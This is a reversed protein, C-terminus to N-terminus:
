PAHSLALAKLHVGHSQLWFYILVSFVMSGMGRLTWKGFNTFQKDLWEQIAEKILEKQEDRRNAM